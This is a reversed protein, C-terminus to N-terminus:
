AGSCRGFAGPYRGLTERVLTEGLVDPALPRVWGAEGEGGPYLERLVDAFERLEEGGVSVVLARLEEEDAAGGRLVLAAVIRRAHRRFKRELRDSDLRHRMAECWLREEHALIAAFPEAADSGLVRVLAAALLWLPGHDEPAPEISAPLPKGLLAAFAGRRVRSSRASARRPNLPAAGIELTVAHALPGGLLRDEGLITWWEGLARALLVVRLSPGDPTGARALAALLERLRPLAEAYDLIVLTPRRLAGVRPLRDRSGLFGTHWGEARMRRCLEIAVRTKGAGAPGTLVLAAFPGPTACWASLQASVSGQLDEVFETLRFQACLFTAPTPRDPTPLEGPDLELEPM